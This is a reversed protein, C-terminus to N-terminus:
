YIYIYVDISNVVWVWFKGAMQLVDVTWMKKPAAKAGHKKRVLFCLRAGQHKRERWAGGWVAGRGLHLEAWRSVDYFRGPRQVVARLLRFRAILFRWPDRCPSFFVSPFRLSERFESPIPVLHGLRLSQIALNSCTVGVVMPNPTLDFLANWSFSSIQFARHEQFPMEFLM